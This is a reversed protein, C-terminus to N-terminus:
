RVQEIVYFRNTVGAASLVFSTDTKTASLEGSAYQWSSSEIDDVYKVRYFRGVESSWKLAVTNSAALAM